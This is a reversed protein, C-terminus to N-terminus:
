SSTHPNLVINCDKSHFSAALWNSFLLNSSQFFLFLILPCEDHQKSSSVGYEM